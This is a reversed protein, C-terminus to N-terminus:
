KKGKDRDRLIEVRREFLEAYQELGKKRATAIIQGSLSVLAARHFQFVPPYQEVDPCLILDDLAFLPKGMLLFAQSRHMHALHAEEPFLEAARSFDGIARLLRAQRMFLRGREMLPEAEWRVMAETLTDLEREMEENRHVTAEPLHVLIHYLTAAMQAKATLGSERRLHELLPSVVMPNGMKGLSWLANVRVDEDTDSLKRLVALLVKASSKGSLKQAAFGREWREGATLMRLLRAEDPETELKVPPAGLPLVPVQRARQVLELEPYSLFTGPYFGHTLEKGQEILFDREQRLAVPDKSDDQPQEGCYPCQGTENSFSRRCNFCLLKTM